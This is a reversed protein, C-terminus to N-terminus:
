ASTRRVVDLERLVEELLTDDRRGLNARHECLLWVQERWTELRQRPFGDQDHL